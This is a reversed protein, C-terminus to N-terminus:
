VIHNGLRRTMREILPRTRSIGYYHLYTVTPNLVTLAIRFASQRATHVDVTLLVLQM